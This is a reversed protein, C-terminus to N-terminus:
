FSFHQQFLVPLLEPQAVSQAVGARSSSKNSAQASSVCTHRYWRPSVGELEFTSTCTAERLYGSPPQNLVGEEEAICLVAGLHSLIQGWIGFLWIEMPKLNNSSAWCRVPLGTHQMYGNMERETATTFLVSIYFKDTCGCLPGNGGSPQESEMQLPAPCQLAPLPHPLLHVASPNPAPCHLSLFLANKM